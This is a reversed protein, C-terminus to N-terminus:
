VEDLIVEKGCAYAVIEPNVLCFPVGVEETRTVFSSEIKRDEQGLDIKKLGKCEISVLITQGSKALRMQGRESAFEGKM